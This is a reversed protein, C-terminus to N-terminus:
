RYAAASWGRGDQPKGPSLDSKRFLLHERINDPVGPGNDEVVIEIPLPANGRGGARMISVGHRFATCLHPIEGAPDIRRWSGGCKEASQDTIQFSRM